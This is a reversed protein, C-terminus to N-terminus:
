VSSFFTNRKIFKYKKMETQNLIYSYNVTDQQKLSARAAKSYDFTVKSM